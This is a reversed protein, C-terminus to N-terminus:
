KKTKWKSLRRLGEEINETSTCFCLRIYNNDGFISGPCVVVGLKMLLDTFKIDTMETKTINIWCYLGGYPKICNLGDISSIGNYMINMRKEFEKNMIFVDSQDELLAATGAIQIFPPVCSSITELLKQMRVILEKPATAVGLRWGTMAFSKSFGNVVIVCEKCHDILSPSYFEGEYIQRSYVEDSIVWLNHKKAIYYIEEIINKHIVIGTPNSPSNILILKTKSTIKSEIEDPIFNLSYTIPILGLANITALYTPFYPCPIIVEDGPDCISALALYIQMNAGNTVLLQNIDPLFKRSRLTIQSAALKLNYMGSSEVYHTKNQQLANIAAQKINNPTNFDPDGLEFHILNQGERELEKAKNLIQFMGQGLYNESLKSFQM